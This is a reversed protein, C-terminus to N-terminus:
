DCSFKDFANNCRKKCAQEQVFKKGACKLLTKKATDCSLIAEEECPDGLEAM